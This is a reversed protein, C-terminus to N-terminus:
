LNNLGLKVLPNSVSDTPKEIYAKLVFGDCTNTCTPKGYPTYTYEVSGSPDATAKAETEDAVVDNVKITSGNPAVLVQKDSVNILDLKNPYGFNENFYEELSAYVSGIDNTRETDRTTVKAGEINNMVLLVVVPVAALMLILNLVWGIRSLVASRHEKKAHSAGVLGLIFGIPLMGIVVCVLSVIGLTDTKHESQGAVPETTPTPMVPDTMPPQTPAYPPMQIPQEAPAPTEPPPPVFELSPAPQQVPQEPHPADPLIPQNQPDNPNM